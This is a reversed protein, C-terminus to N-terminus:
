DSRLRDIAAKVSDAQAPGRGPARAGTASIPTAPRRPAAPPQNRSAQERQWKANAEIILANRHAPHIAAFVRQELTKIKTLVLPLLNKAYHQDIQDPTIGAETLAGKTLALATQEDRDSWAREPQAQRAPQAERPTAIPAAQQAQAAAPKAPAGQAAKAKDLIAQLADTDGYQAAGIAKELEGVDVLPAPAAAPKRGIAQDVADLGQRLLDLNQVDKASPERGQQIAQVARLASAQAKVSWALQEDNLTQFDDRVNHREEIAKFARGYEADPKLAELEKRVADREDFLAEYRAKVKGKTHQREERTWKEVRELAPKEQAVENKPKAPEQEIPKAPDAAPKAAPTIAKDDPQDPSDSRLRAIAAAIPNDPAKDDSGASKEAVEKSEAAEAKEPKPQSPKEAAEEAAAMLATPNQSDLVDDTISTPSELEAVSGPEDQSM